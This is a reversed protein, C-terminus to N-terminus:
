ASPSVPAGCSRAAGRRPAPCGADHRGGPRARRGHAARRGGVRDRGRPRGPAGAALRRAADREADGLRRPRAGGAGPAAAPRVRHGAPGAVEDDEDVRLGHRRARLGGGRRKLAADPDDERAVDTIRRSALVALPDHALLEPTGSQLWTVVPADPALLPLVVSEAHLSLRGSMRLVAAEGPGFREGVSVEADLRDEAKYSRRVVLLVRSPHENAAVYVADEVDPLEQETTVVVLTLALGLSVAGSARREAQLAAVVKQGTTDWIATSM